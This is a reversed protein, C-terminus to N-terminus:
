KILVNVWHSPPETGFGGDVGANYEHLDIWEGGDYKVYVSYTTNVFASDPAAYVTLESQIISTPLEQANATVSMITFILILFYKKM